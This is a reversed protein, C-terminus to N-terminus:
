RPTPARDRAVQASWLPTATTADTDVEAKDWYRRKPEFFVIPDDCAVAQQIM